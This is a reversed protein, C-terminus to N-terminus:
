SLNLYLLYPLEDLDEHSIKRVQEKENMDWPKFVERAGALGRWNGTTTNRIERLLFLSVRTVEEPKRKANTAVYSLIFVLIDVPLARFHSRDQSSRTGKAVEIAQEIFLLDQAKANLRLARQLQSNKELSIPNHNVDVTTLHTHKALAEVGKDGVLNHRLILRSLYALKSLAEVGKDRILNESVDLVELQSMESLAEAGKDGIQNNSLNLATLYTNTKFAEGLIAIDSDNLERGSLDLKTLNQDNSAIKKLIEEPIRSMIEFERKM